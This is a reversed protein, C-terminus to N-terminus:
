WTTNISLLLILTSWFSFNHIYVKSDYSKVNLLVLVLYIIHWNLSSLESSPPALKSPYTIGMFFLKQYKPDINCLSPTILSSTLWLILTHYTFYHYVNSMKQSFLRLYVLLYIRCSSWCAIIYTTSHQSIFLCCM